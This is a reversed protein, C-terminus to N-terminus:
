KAPKVKVKAALADAQAAQAEILLAAPTSDAAIESMAKAIQAHVAGTSEGGEDHEERRARDQATDQLAQACISAAKEAASALDAFFRTNFKTVVSGSKTIEATSLHADLAEDDMSELRAICREVQVRLRHGMSFSIARSIAREIADPAASKKLAIIASLKKDWQCKRAVEEIDEVRVGVAHATRVPDAGLTAYLTFVHERNLKGPAIELVPKDEPQPPIETEM